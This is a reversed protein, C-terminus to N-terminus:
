PYVRYTTTEDGYNTSEGSTVRDRDANKITISGGSALVMAKITKSSDYAWQRLSKTAEDIKAHLAARAAADELSASIRKLRAVNHQHCWLPSWWTGAPKKCGKEICPEGTHYKGSNGEHKPDEFPLM